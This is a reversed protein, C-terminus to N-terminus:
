MRAHVSGVFQKLNGDSKEMCVIGTVRLVELWVQGQVELNGIQDVRLLAISRALSGDGNDLVDVVAIRVDRHEGQGKEVDADLVAAVGEM